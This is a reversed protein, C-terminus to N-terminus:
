TDDYKELKGVQETYSYLQILDRLCRETSMCFLACSIAIIFLDKLVSVCQIQKQSILLLLQLFAPIAIEVLIGITGTIAAILSIQPIAVAFLYALLNMAIRICSDCITKLLGDKMCSELENSWFNDFCSFYSLIYTVLLAMTYLLYVIFSVLSKTPLTSLANEEVTDGYNLYLILAFILYILVIFLGAINLSGCISSFHRPNKMANKLPLMIGTSRITLIFMAFGKPIFSVDGLIRPSFDSKRNIFSYSIIVSIMIITFINAISSYPVLIKLISRKQTILIMLITIISIIITDNLQIDFFDAMLRINTSMIILYTSPSTPLSLYFHSLYTIISEFKNIPFPARQMIKKTVGVFSLSKLKLVSCLYYETSVLIHVNHYYLIGVFIIVITGNLIGLNKMAYPMMLIGCGVTSRMIHVGAGCIGIGNEQGFDYPDFDLQSKENTKEPCLSPHTIETERKPSKNAMENGPPTTPLKGDIPSVQSDTPVNM